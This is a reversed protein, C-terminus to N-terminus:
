REWPKSGPKFSTLTQVIRYNGKELASQASALDTKMIALQKQAAQIHREMQAIRNDWRFVAREAETKQRDDDPNYRGSAIAQIAMDLMAEDDERGRVSVIDTMDDVELNQNALFVATEDAVASYSVAFNRKGVQYVTHGHKNRGLPKPTYGGSIPTMPAFIGVAEGLYEKYKKMSEKEKDLSEQIKTGEELAEYPDAYRDLWRDMAEEASWGDQKSDWVPDETPHTRKGNRDCKWIAAKTWNPNTEGQGQSKPEATFCFYRNGWQILTHEKPMGAPRKVVRWWPKQTAEGLAKIDKFHKM